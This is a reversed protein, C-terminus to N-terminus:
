GTTFGGFPAFVVPTKSGLFSVAGRCPRPFTDEAAGKRPPLGIIGIGTTESRKVM